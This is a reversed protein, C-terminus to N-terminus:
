CYSPLQFLADDATAGPTWEIPEFLADDFFIWKAPRGTAKEAWYTVFPRGPVDSDGNEWVHCDYHGVKEDRLYTAGQLWTPPLLGVGMQICHCEKTQPTYYYTTGNQLENDFLPGNAEGKQTRVINLNRKAPFDYWLDVIGLDDGRQQRMVAHFRSPWMPPEPKDAASCWLALLCCFALSFSIM